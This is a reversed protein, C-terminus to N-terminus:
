HYYDAYIYYYYHSSHSTDAWNYILGLVKARRQHLLELAALVPRARSYRSRVVFLVGDTQPALTTADDAAFIPSSDILVYDYEKRWKALMKDLEPHLFIDGPNSRLSGSSIFALDPVGNTQVVNGAAAPDTLLESLGPQAAMGMMEHLSGRRLDADVLLVWAGGFALARALNATVTSKGEDPVASTVLVVKPHVGDEQLYLLASRLNRYSEAFMHRPDEAELLPLKVQRRGKGKPAMDPVQGIVEGPLKDTVEALASFRDDRLNVILVIGFGIALGMLLAVASLILDQKHSRVAPSATELIALTEQDINRSIDVNQLLVVLRDYLTQSRGMNLKLHEAEAMQNNADVVKVEWEKIATQVSEIRMKLAQRAAALQEASQSRYMEILTQAREIDNALKVIKPHKPRLFKGLRQQQAKLLELEKMATRRDSAETASASTPRTLSEALFAGSNTQGAKTWGQDLETAELLQSELKYDSVQTKLRALYGAAVTGEEQLIALNNTRQFATLADQDSKLERELRLVQDSISALTDGSVLKRINRRYEVYEQMLANLFAQAFEPNACTAEVAFVTSKPAMTVRLGVKLPNNDDGVAIVNTRSAQLRTLVM